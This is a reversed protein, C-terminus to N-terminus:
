KIKFNINIYKLFSMYSITIYKIFYGYDTSM